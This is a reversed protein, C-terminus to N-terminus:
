DCSHSQGCCVMNTDLQFKSKLITTTINNVLGATGMHTGSANSDGFLNWGSNSDGMTRISDAAANVISNINSMDDMAPSSAIVFPMNRIVGTICIVKLWRAKNDPSFM